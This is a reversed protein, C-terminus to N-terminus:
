VADAADIVPPLEVARSTADLLRGLLRAKRALDAQSGIGRALIEPQHEAIKARAFRRWKRMKGMARGFSQDLDPVDLMDGAVIQLAELVAHILHMDGEGM